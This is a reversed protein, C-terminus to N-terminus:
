MKSMNWRYKAENNWSLGPGIYCFYNFPIYFGISIMPEYLNSAAVSLALASSLFILFVGNAYRRVKVASTVKETFCYCKNSWQISVIDYWYWVIHLFTKIVRSCIYTDKTITNVNFQEHPRGCAKIWRLCTQLRTKPKPFPFFTGNKVHEPYRTDTNCTGFCCRKVM